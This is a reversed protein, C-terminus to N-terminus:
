YFCWLDMGRTSVKKLLVADDEITKVTANKLLAAMQLSNIRYKEYKVRESGKFDYVCASDIEVVQNTM